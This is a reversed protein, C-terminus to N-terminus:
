VRLVCEDAGIKRGRSLPCEICVLEKWECVIEVGKSKSSLSFGNKILLMHGVDLEITVYGFMKLKCVFGRCNCM